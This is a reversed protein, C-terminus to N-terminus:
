LRALIEAAAEAPSTQDTDIVIDAAPMAAMSAVFAEKMESLIEPSRLKGFEARSSNAIRQMQEEASVRLAIFIVEGGSSEVLSKVAQPFGPDVTPEPAFTFILSRDEAVAASFVDMWFQERLRIFSESGFPFVSAVADVVLHNHFLPLGTQRALQRAVTLKGAAAEGYIFILRM